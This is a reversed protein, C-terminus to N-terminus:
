RPLPIVHVFYILSWSAVPGLIQHGIKVALGAFSVGEIETLMQLLAIRAPALKANEILDM